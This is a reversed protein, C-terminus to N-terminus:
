HPLHTVGWALMLGLVALQAALVGFLLRRRPWPTSRDRARLADWDVESLTSGVAPAADQVRRVYRGCETCRLWLWVLGAGRGPETWEVVLAGDPHACVDKVRKM